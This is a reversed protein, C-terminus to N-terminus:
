PVRTFRITVDHNSNRIDRDPVLDSIPDLGAVHPCMGLSTGRVHTRKNVLGTFGLFWGM